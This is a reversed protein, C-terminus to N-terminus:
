RSSQSPPPYRSCYAPQGFIKLNAGVIDSVDCRGDYNTDCLPSVPVSGFIALNIAVLDRADVTGDGNQDGCECADGIGNGDSDLPNATRYDPCVDCVDGIGDRDRDRQEPDPALPCDDDEDAVGDADADRQAVIDAPLTALDDAAFPCPARLVRGRGNALDIAILANAGADRGVLVGDVFAIGAIREFGITGIVRSVGTAPDIQFLHGGGLLEVGFLSGDARFALAQMQGPITGLSTARGSALDLRLLRDPSGSTAFLEGAPSWAMAFVNEFGTDGVRETIGTKLDIRYLTEGHGSAPLSYYAVGDPSIALTDSTDPPDAFLPEAACTIPDVELLGRAILRESAALAEGSVVLVVALALNRLFV